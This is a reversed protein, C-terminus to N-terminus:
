TRKEGKLGAQVQKVIVGITWYRLDLHESLDKLAYERICM